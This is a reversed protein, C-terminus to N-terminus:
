GADQLAYAGPMHNAHKAEDDELYKVLADLMTDEDPALMAAETARAVINPSYQKGMSKRHHVATEVILHIAKYDRVVNKWSFWSM